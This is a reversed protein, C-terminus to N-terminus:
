DDDLDVIEAVENDSSIKRKKKAPASSKSISSTPKTKTSGDSLKIKISVTLDKTKENMMIMKPGVNLYSIVTYPNFHFEEKLFGQVLMTAVIREVVERDYKPVKVSDVRCKKNGKGFWADMLKLATMREEIETAHALLKKLDQLLPYMLIQYTKKRSEDCNDCMDTCLSPDWSDGFHQALQAKRCTDKDLAYRLMNYVNPVGTKETVMLSTARFIDQFKYYLICHAVEGDRGARGTEQYYNELSKSISHHIVYRVDLKNIGMGFAVTAVIVQYQGSYWGQQAKTRFEPELQAHYPRARIGFSRLKQSVDECDKITLCYIIGSQNPFRTQILDGIDEIKDNSIIDRVQYKLNSRYFSDKFVLCGEINLMKQVDVVVNCTATATLGLIPTNPYQTKM